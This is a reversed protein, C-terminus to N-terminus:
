APESTIVVMIQISREEQFSFISSPESQVGRTAQLKESDCLFFQFQIISVTLRGQFGPPNMWHYHCFRSQFLRFIMILSLTKGNGQKSHLVYKIQKSRLHRPNLDANKEIWPARDSSNGSKKKLKIKKKKQTYPQTTFFEGALSPSETEIGLNPLYWLPPFAVWELIRAQLIGNVSFGLPSCDM